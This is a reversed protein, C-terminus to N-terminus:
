SKCEITFELVEIGNFNTKQSEKINMKNFRSSFYSKERLSNIFKDLFVLYDESAEGWRAVYGKLSLIEKDFNLDYFWINRPLAAFIDELITEVKYKPTTVKQLVSKENELNAIEMKIAQILKYKQSWRAWKKNYVGNTHMKKLSVIQLGLTLILFVAATLIALPTYAVVNQLVESSVREKKPNLNVIIKNM